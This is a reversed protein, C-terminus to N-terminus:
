TLGASNAPVRFNKGPATPLQKWKEYFCRAPFRAFGPFIHDLAICFIRSLGSSFKGAGRLADIARGIGAFLFFPPARRTALIPAGLIIQPRHERM